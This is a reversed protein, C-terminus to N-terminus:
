RGKAEKRSSLPRAPVGVYVEGEGIQTNRTVIAGAGTTANKGVHSPAVLVTGSGIFAGDEITTPYKGVGDYNATITGAGINAKEGITADGLYTLHKAKSGPGLRSKKMEVFNGVAARDDLVAGVRLQAFPGVECEEGITVGAHIVTCPLIRTGAGIAVGHDIYTTYPDDIIVGSAMHEELIRLQMISRAVALEDLSNVAAIETEDETQLAHVEQGKGLFFSVTDTLYYENQANDDSLSDLAEHIRAGDFCYFGANIEDIEREADSCDREERIATVLGTEDRLVRGLGSPDPPIATLLSMAGAGRAERLARLTETTILAADGYTVMVDGDFGKLAEAAVQVAHGTGKPTGQDVTTVGPRDAVHAEVKEKQHGVVVVTKEPQLEAVADLVTGLLSRGCLPLLVKPIKVKTRKGQGAALVVVALPRSM